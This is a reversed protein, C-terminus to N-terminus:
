FLLKALGMLVSYVLFKEKGRLNIVMPMAGSSADVPASTLTPTEPFLAARVGVTMVGDKSGINITATGNVSLGRSEDIHLWGSLMVGPTIALRDLQIPPVKSSQTAAVDDGTSFSQPAIAAM